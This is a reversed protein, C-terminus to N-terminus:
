RAACPRLRLGRLSSQNKLRRPSANCHPQLHRPRNNDSPPLGRACASAQPPSPYVRQSLSSTTALAENLHTRAHLVRGLCPIHCVPLRPARQPSASAPRGPRGLWEGHAPLRCAFCSVVAHDRGMAAIPSPDTVCSARDPPPGPSPKRASVPQHLPLHTQLL